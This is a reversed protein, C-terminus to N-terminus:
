RFAVELIDGSKLHQSDPVRLKLGTRSVNKVVMSGKGVQRRNVLRTFTGPFAVERRFQRRREFMAPYRHGCPCRVKIKVAKDLGKYDALNVTRMKKCRPCSFTATNDSSIFVREM